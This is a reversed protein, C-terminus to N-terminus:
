TGTATIFMEDVGKFHVMSDNDGSIIEILIDKFNIFFSINM